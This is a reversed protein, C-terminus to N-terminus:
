ALLAAATAELAHEADAPSTARRLSAVLYTVGAKAYADLDRRIQDRSGYLPRADTSDPLVGKRLSITISAPDRGQAEAATRLQAAATRLEDPTLDIAHWGDGLCAARRFARPSNGAIWLPPHPRQAPVPGTRVPPLRYIRGEFRAEGGAWLAKAIQLYEDTRRGRDEYPVDLAEFEEKLWGVGVALILRGASLADLSAVQKATVVPNRYPMVYASVGLRVRPVRGALYALTVLPEYFQEIVGMDGPVPHPRRDYPYVSTVGVPAVLHDSV